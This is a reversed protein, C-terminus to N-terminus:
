RKSRKAKARRQALATSARLVGDNFDNFYDGDPYVYFKVVKFPSSCFQRMIAKMEQETGAFHFDRNGTVMCYGSGIELLSQNRPLFELPDNLDQDGTLAFEVVLEYRAPIFKSMVANMKGTNRERLTKPTKRVSARVRNTKTKTM